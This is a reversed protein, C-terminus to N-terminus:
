FPKEIGRETRCLLNFFWLLFIAMKRTTQSLFIKEGKKKSFNEKLFSIIILFTSSRPCFIMFLINVNWNTSMAFRAILPIKNWIQLYLFHYFSLNGFLKKPFRLRTSQRKLDAQLNRLNEVWFEEECNNKKMLNWWPLVNMMRCDIWNEMQQNKIKCFKWFVNVNSRYFLQNNMM